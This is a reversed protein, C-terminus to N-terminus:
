AVSVDFAEAGNKGDRVDFSVRQNNDLTLFDRDAGDSRNGDNRRSAGKVINSFHVFLDKGGADPVIFGYGRGGNFFKVTGDGISMDPAPLDAKEPRETEFRDDRKAVVQADPHRDDSSGRAHRSPREKRAVPTEERRTSIPPDTLLGVDPDTLPENLGIARQLKTADKKQGGEILSVVTGSEGARATRGSRHVYTSNEAPPDFHIVCNVGNVHIGRAAVDTAILAAAKGQKFAALARDRQGQSRGGHIPEAQVGLKGLQKALRDAGHRTRTFVITSGMKTIVDACVQQRQERQVLWFKHDALSMDPGKPGVEHRVPNNQFDAVLKAVPGDLTASFLLVQRRAATQGVIRRVAPLFGMDAMQDAEDIVVTSVDALNIAGMQILDELRGPCAVVLETGRDLAKRQNGYGVGGYISTAWHGAAQCFPSLEAMIQEALERTPALVLAVPRRAKADRLGAVLPLGFGLTKGSGTPARGAVDRGSMADPIVAAQIPFADYKGQSQLLTVISTPLGLQDFPTPSTEDLARPADDTMTM